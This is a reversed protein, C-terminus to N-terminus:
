KPENHYQLSQHLVVCDAHMQLVLVPPDIKMKMKMIDIGFELIICKIPDQHQHIQYHRQEPREWQQM